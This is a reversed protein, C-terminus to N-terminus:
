PRSKISGAKEGVSLPSPTPLTARKLIRQVLKLLHLSAFPKGVYDDACMGVNELRDQIEDTYASLFIVPARNFERFKLFFDIGNLILLDPPVFMLKPLAAVPNDYAAV